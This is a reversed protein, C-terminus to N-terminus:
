GMAYNEMSFTLKYELTQQSIHCRSVMDLLKMPKQVDEVRWATRAALAAAM